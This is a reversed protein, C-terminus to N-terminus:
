ELRFGSIDDSEVHLRGLVRSYEAHILLTRDLCQITQVGYRRHRGSARFSMPELVIAVSRERLIRGQFHPRSLDDAFGRWPVRAGLEDIEEAPDDGRRVPGALNVDDEVVQGRM